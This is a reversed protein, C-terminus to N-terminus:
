LCVRLMARGRQSLQAEQQINLFSAHLKITSHMTSCIPSVSIFESNITGCHIQFFTLPRRPTIHVDHTETRIIASSASRPSRTCCKIMSAGFLVLYLLCQYVVSHYLFIRWSRRVIVVVWNLRNYYNKALQKSVIM